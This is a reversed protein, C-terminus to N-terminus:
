YRRPKVSDATGNLVLLSLFFVCVIILVYKAGSEYASGSVTFRSSPPQTFDDEEEFGNDPGESHQNVCVYGWPHIADFVPALEGAVYEDEDFTMNQGGTESGQNNWSPLEGGEYYNQAEEPTVSPTIVKPEVPNVQRPEDVGDSHPWPYFPSDESVGEDVAMGGVILMGASLAIAAAWGAPGFPLLALQFAM